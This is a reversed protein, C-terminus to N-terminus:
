LLLAGNDYDKSVRRGRRRRRRIIIIIIISTMNGRMPQGSESIFSRDPFCNQIKSGTVHSYPHQTCTYTNEVGLSVTGPGTAQSTAKWEYRLLVTTRLELAM